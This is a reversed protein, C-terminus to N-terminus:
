QSKLFEDVSNLSQADATPFNAPVPYSVKKTALWETARIVTTQFGVCRYAEPYIEGRWLHGMSSNYVRGKGYNVVWEVPWLKKTSSSDYAYSLVTMNEAPGRPFNYVETNATQWASPFDKNIPHHNLIQIVANFRDGHGTGNGEGPPIRKINKQDDIEIAYGSSKSRWGIGIMKDYEAWHPYANNGSHLIYLGGGSRVYDELLIEAQRPWKLEQKQINNTNQIVVAYEKFSPLWEERQVSDAPITNVDVTFRDTKELIWKIVATTQKWDHNSFGDVILVPIRKKNQAMMHLPSFQLLLLGVCIKYVVSQFITSVRSM